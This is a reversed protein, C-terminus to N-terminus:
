DIESRLCKRPEVKLSLTYLESEDLTELNQLLRLIQHISQFNYPPKQYIQIGFILDYILRRKQFNILGEIVDPNGDEIFTLDTLYLAFYPICPPNIEKILTRYNAFSKESSLDTELDDLEEFFKEPLEDFTHKLRHVASSGLGSLIAMLGNFNNLKRCHSAINIFWRLAKGREKVRERKLIATAVWGSILNFRHIMQIVNPSRHRLKPSSWALKLLESPKIKEYINYEILTIQRAIEEPDVDFLNLKPSFITKPLKPEPPLDYFIHGKKNKQEMKRKIILSLTSGIKNFKESNLSNDIFDQLETLVKSNFDEFYDTIWFKLVNCVRLQIITKKDKYIEEMEKPIHFRQTLKTLLTRPSTFSQYTMLFTKTYLVNRQKEHTLIEVLKNLSAAEIEKMEEKTTNKNETKETYIINKKEGEDDWISTLDYDDDDEVELGLSRLHGVLDINGTQQDLQNEQEKITQDWVLDVNKIAVRVLNQLRSDRVYHPQYKIGTEEELITKTKRFGVAMLHQMILQLIIDDNLKQKTEEQGAGFIRAFSETRSLPFVRERLNRIDPNNKMVKKFWNQRDDDKNDNKSTVKKKNQSM